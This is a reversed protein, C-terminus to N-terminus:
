LSLLVRVVSPIDYLQFYSGEYVLILSPLFFIYLIFFLLKYIASPWIKHYNVIRPLLIGVRLNSFKV